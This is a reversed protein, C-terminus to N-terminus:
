CFQGSCNKTNLRIRTV